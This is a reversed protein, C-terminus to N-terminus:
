IEHPEVRGGTLIRDFSPRLLESLVDPLEGRQAKLAWLPPVASPPQVDGTKDDAKKYCHLSCWRSQRYAAKAAVGHAAHSLCCVVSGPPLELHEIALPAGTVPHVRGKLWGASMEEDTAAQCASPERFFHSGRIIKLGGDDEAAFGRPYFLCLNANPQARYENPAAIGCDDHGAGIRHSHWAGGAYGAARTLLQNHDFYVADSDLCMQQLSLMQPHMLVGMLYPIHGAPFYEALVSHRRLTLIGAENDRQPIAQSNGLAREIAIPALTQAPFECGLGLWDIQQWDSQLLADNLQQGDQLATTWAEITQPTMIGKLVIYGDQLYNAYDFQEALAQENFLDVRDNALQQWDSATWEAPSRKASIVAPRTARALVDTPGALLKTQTPALRETQLLPNNPIPEQM